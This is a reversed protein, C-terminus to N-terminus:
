KTTARVPERGRLARIGEDRSRLARAGATSREGTVQEVQLLLDDMSRREESWRKANAGVDRAGGIGGFLQYLESLLGAANAIASGVSGTTPGSDVCALNAELQKDVLEERLPTWRAEVAQDDAAFGDMRPFVERKAWAFSRQETQCWAKHLEAIKALAPMLQACGTSVLTAAAVLALAGLTNKVSRKM